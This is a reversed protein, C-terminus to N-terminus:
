LPSPTTAPGIAPLQRGPPLLKAGDSEQTACLSVKAHIPLGGIACALDSILEGLRLSETQSGAEKRAPFQRRKSRPRHKREVVEGCEAFKRLSMYSTIMTLVM